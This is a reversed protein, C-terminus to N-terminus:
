EFQKLRGRARDLEQDTFLSSFEPRLVLAEVTLDLRGRDWLNAFGDSVTPDHLLKRATELPGLESLMRLFYTPTYGVEAKAREYISVM